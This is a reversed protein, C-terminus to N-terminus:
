RMLASASPTRVIPPYPCSSPQTRIPLIEVPLESGQDIEVPPPDAPDLEAQNNRRRSGPCRTEGGPTQYSVSYKAAAERTEPILEHELIPHGATACAGRHRHGDDDASGQAGDGGEGMRRGMGHNGVEVSGSGGCIRRSPGCVVVSWRVGCVVCLWGELTPLECFDLNARFLHLWGRRHQPSCCAERRAQQM